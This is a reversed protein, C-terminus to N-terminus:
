SVKRRSCHGQMQMMISIEPISIAPLEMESLTPLETHQRGTKWDTNYQTLIDAKQTPSVQSISIENYEAADRTVDDDPIAKYDRRIRYIRVDADNLNSAVAASGIGIIRGEQNGSPYENGGVRFYQGFPAPLTKAADRYPKAGWMLGNEYDASGTGRPYYM